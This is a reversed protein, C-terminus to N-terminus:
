GLRGTTAVRLSRLGNRVGTWGDHMSDGDEREPMWVPVEAYRLGARAALVRAGTDPADDPLDDVFCRMAAPTLAQLGSTPDTVAIGTGWKLAGRLMAAGVRRRFPGPSGTGHRTAVVWDADDLAEAVLPLSEPPHQGDADLQIVWPAGASLAHRYGTRLADAYGQGTQQLVVAGAARAVHVTDDTSRGDVVVLTADPMAGHAAQLITQIRPGENRAPVLIWPPVAAIVSPTQISSRATNM